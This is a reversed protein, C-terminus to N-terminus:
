VSFDNASDLSEITWTRENEHLKRCFMQLIIGIQSNAYGRPFIRSGGSSFYVRQEMMLLSVIALESYFVKLTFHYVRLLIRIWLQWYFSKTSIKFFIKPESHHLFDTNVNHVLICELLIRVTRQLPWRPPTQGPPHRGPPLHRGPFHRGLPIDTQRPSPPEAGTCAPICVGETFLIM